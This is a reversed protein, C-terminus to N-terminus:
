FLCLVQDTLQQIRERTLPQRRLLRETVRPEFSHSKATVVAIFTVDLQFSAHAIIEISEFAIPSRCVEEVNALDHILGAKDVEHILMPRTFNEQCDILAITSLDGGILEM